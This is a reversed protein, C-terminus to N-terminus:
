AGVECKLRHRIQWVLSELCYRKGCEVCQCQQVTYGDVDLGYHRDVFNAKVNTKLLRFGRRIASSQREQRRGIRRARDYTIYEKQGTHEDTVTIM